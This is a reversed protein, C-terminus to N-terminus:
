YGKNDLFDKAIIEIIDAVSLGNDNGYAQLRSKLKPNMMTTFRKRGDASIKYPDRSGRNHKKFEPITTESLTPTDETAGSMKDFVSNVKKDLNLKKKAM